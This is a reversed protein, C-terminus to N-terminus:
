WDLKLGRAKAASLAYKKTQSFADPLDEQGEAATIEDFRAAVTEPTLDEDALNIGATEYVRTQAFSGAGAGLIVRSPADESVLYLL